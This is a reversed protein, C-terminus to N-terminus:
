RPILDRAFLLHNVTYVPIRRTAQKIPVDDGTDITHKVIETRGLDRVQCIVQQVTFAVSPCQTKIKLHCVKAQDKLYTLWIIQCNKVQM